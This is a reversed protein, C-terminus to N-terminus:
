RLDCSIGGPRAGVSFLWSVRSSICGPFQFWSSDFGMSSYDLPHLRSIRFSLCISEYLLIFDPLPGCTHLRKIQSRPPMVRWPTLLNVFKEIFTAPDIAKGTHSFFHIVGCVHLFILGLYLASGYTFSLIVVNNSSLMKPVKSYGFIKLIPYM